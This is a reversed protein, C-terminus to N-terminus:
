MQGTAPRYHGQFNIWLYDSGKTAKGNKLQQQHLQQNQESFVSVGFSDWHM